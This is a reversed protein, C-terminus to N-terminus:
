REDPLALDRRRQKLELIKNYITLALVIGGMLAVAVQWGATLANGWAPFTVGAGGYLWGIDKM